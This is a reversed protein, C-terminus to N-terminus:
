CYTAAAIAVAGGTGDSHFTGRHGGRRSTGQATALLPLRIWPLLPFRIWPFLPFCVWPLLPYRLLPFCGCSYLSAYECSFPTVSCSSAYGCSFSLPHHLLPFCVWLLPLRCLLFLREWSLVTSPATLAYGTSSPTISAYGSHLSSTASLPM